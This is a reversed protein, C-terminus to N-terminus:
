GGPNEKTRQQWQQQNLQFPVTTTAADPLPYQPGTSTNSLLKTQHNQSSDEKQWEQKLYKMNQGHSAKIVM